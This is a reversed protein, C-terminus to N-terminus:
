ISILYSFKLLFVNHPRTKRLASFDDKFSFDGDSGSSTVGQSWVLYLTSGASYEWRLVVNSRYQRFNFDPNNFSYDVNGDRNEDIEYESDKSTHSIQNLTYIDFRDDFNDAKPDTIRKFKSYRGASMFPQGYYQISLEPTITYNIRITFNLLKQDITGFIYKDNGNYEKIGVFQLEDSIDVYSSSLSLSLNNLPRYTAGIWYEKVMGRDDDHFKYYNGAYGYIKKSRDSNMNINFNTYGPEKFVPGGRLKNVSKSENQRTISGNIRWRNKFQSNFNVNAAVSLWEGDTTFYTWYNSNIYLNRFIGFPERLYYGMWTGHHIFDSYRMYGVDNFEHGPSRYTVSTEFQIRKKSQKGFKLSAGYGTLSTASSDVKLHSADPRQYYRASSTQANLIADAHGKINSFSTNAAVYWTRKNWNHRFDLGGTYAEEPLFNLNDYSIDRNVATFIGGLTTEGKNFDKKVRSVFYNTLPEVIEKRRDGNNDIEAKEEQTISELIGISLGNKTKGSLKFAGLITTADPRDSYEGDALDPSHHPSRGIRRSYFLNDRGFNNIVIPNSPQYQYINKGEIFFPRRESFYSEFATLNVESPDAEVQGFDPNITFDLTLDNTIGVKGDVGASLTYDRGKKFPNGHEKKFAEAKTVVYPTIEIKRKPKINKIGHLEAFLHVIGPSGKPIFQWHSREELRHIHRMFQIGWIHEKKNGFRLQSFPIKMEAYWGKNDISTKLFWVPNWSEDWYQGNRSIMEDGKAGSAMASFSFATQKDFDSDINIEVLDGSFDDRRALIRSIKEPETDHCRILVYLNNNDYMIKFSTQQSPKKNEYPMTQTFDGGWEVINWCRDDPYGDIRPPNSTFKTSYSKRKITDQASLSLTLFCILTLFYIKKM